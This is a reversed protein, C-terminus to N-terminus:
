ESGSIEQLISQAQQWPVKDDDTWCTCHDGNAVNAQLVRCFGEPEARKDDGKTMYYDCDDGGNTGGCNAGSKSLGVRPANIWLLNLYSPDSTAIFREPGQNAEGFCHAACHPWYEISKDPDGYTFKRITVHPGILQCSRGSNYFNCNYCSAPEDNMESAPTFLVQGKGLVPQTYIDPQSIARRIANIKPLHKDRYTLFGESV